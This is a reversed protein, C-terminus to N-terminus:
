FRVVNPVRAPWHIVEPAIDAMMDAFLDFITHVDFLVPESGDLSGDVFEHLISNRLLEPEISPEDPLTTLCDPLIFLIFLILLISLM